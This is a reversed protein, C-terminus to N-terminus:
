TMDWREKADTRQRWYQIMHLQSEPNKQMASKLNHYAAALQFQSKPSMLEWLFMKMQM